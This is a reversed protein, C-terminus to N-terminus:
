DLWKPEDFGAYEQIAGHIHQVARTDCVRLDCVGYPLKNLRKGSSSTPLYDIVHKRLCSRPLELADLWRQEIQEITLGNGTYVNLRLTIREPLAGLCEVLFRRFVQVMHVDSNAFRVSNREKSGEAWFLMCGAMHLPEGERAKARGEEQYAERRRRNLERWREGRLRGAHRVNRERQADTIPVDRVWLSVSGQSVGVRTAIQRVPM